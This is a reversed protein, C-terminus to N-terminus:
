HKDVEKKDKERLRLSNWSEDRFAIAEELIRELESRFYEITRKADTSEVVTTIPAEGERSTTLKQYKYIELLNHNCITNKVETIVKAVDCAALHVHIRLSPRHPDINVWTYPDDLLNMIAIVDNKMKDGILDHFSEWIKLLSNLADEKVNWATEYYDDWNANKDQLRERWNSPPRMYRLLNWYTDLIQRKVVTISPEIRQSRWWEVIREIVLITIFSALLNAVLDRFGVEYYFKYLVSYLVGFFVCLSILLTLMHRRM